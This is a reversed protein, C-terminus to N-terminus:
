RYAILTDTAPVLLTSEAVALGTMVPGVYESPPRIPLGASESWAEEGTSLDFGYVNGDTSGVFAYGDAVVPATAITGDGPATWTVVSTILDVCRLADTVYLACSGGFAPATLSEYDGIVSGDATDLIRTGEGFAGRAWLADGHLVPTREHNGNCSQSFAPWLTLGTKRHIRYTKGCNDSTYVSDPTVAAGSATSIPHDFSWEVSGTAAVMSFTTGGLGSGSLYLSGDYVTLPAAFSSQPLKRQWIIAGTVQDLALVFGDGDVTYLRQDDAALTRNRGFGGVTVPGWLIEGSDVDLAHLVVGHLSGDPKTSVTFVRGDVLLPYGLLGDFDHRWAEALPMAMDTIPNAGDHFVNGQYTTAADVPVVVPPDPPDPPTELPVPQSAPDVFYGALDALVHTSGASNTFAVTGDAGLAAVVANARVVNASFNINSASPRPETGPYVTLYGASTPKVVAVGMSAALADAPVGAYRGVKLKHTGNIGLAGRRLGTGTRTDLQRSPPDLGVYGAGENPRFAGVVDVVLNTTAHTFIRINGGPGVPVVALNAITKNTTYNLNSVGPLPSGDPHLTIHGAATPTVVAVNVVVATADTAVGGLGAVQLAISQGGAVPTTRGSPGFAGEAYGTGSARTDLARAPSPLANFRDVAPGASGTPGYWGALDVVVHTSGAANYITVKGDAAVTATVNVAVTEGRAFNVNSTAPRVGNPYVTLHAAATPAVATLNLVVATADAPVGAIGRVSMRMSANSPIPTTRGDVGFDGESAGLVGPRSDLLRVPNVATYPQAPAVGAEGAPGLRLRGAGYLNDDGPPGADQAKDKLMQHLEAVDLDPSAGLLMAAGGAVHPASASTGNFGSACGASPGYVSGSTGDPGSIDPKLRGDITPGQSSYPQRAGTARCHAGVAVVAPSSAPEVLSGVTTHEIEGVDGAFYFDLRPTGAGSRRNVYAYFVDPVDRCNYFTLEEVPALNQAAQNDTGGVGAQGCQESFVFLDFDQRTTPWADWKLSITVGGRPGVVFAFYDDPSIDVFDDYNLGAKPDGIANTHFHHVGYNGASAVYLIGQDRVKAVAGAVTSAGGSGDGRGTLAFGFSGNIVDVGQSAMSSMASVFDVDSEICVLLLEARPAMEHAIEAVATGHDTLEPDSCRSFDATTGLPLQDGFLPGAGKFGGDVIAIKTGTGEWGAAQWAATGSEVVGESDVDLTAYRPERVFRVGAARSLSGLRAPPVVAELLQDVRTTVSGGAESVARAAMDTDSAEIVVQVNDGPAKAVHDPRAGSPQPRRTYLDDELSEALRPNRDPGRGPVDAGDHTRPPDADDAGVPVTAVFSAALAIAILGGTQRLLQTNCRM